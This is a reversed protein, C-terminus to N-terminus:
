TPVVGEDVALACREDRFYEQVLSVDKLFSASVTACPGM